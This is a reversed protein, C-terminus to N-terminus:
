HGTRIIKPRGPGRRSEPAQAQPAPTAEEDDEDEDIDEHNPSVITTKPDLTADFITTNDEETTYRNEEHDDSADDPFKVDRSVYIKREAPIWVGQM